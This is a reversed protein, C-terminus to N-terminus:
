ADGLRYRDEDIGPPFDDAADKTPKPPVPAAAPPMAYSKLLGCTPCRFVTVPIARKWDMVIGGTKFLGFFSAEVPVGPLFTAWQTSGHNADPQCGIEMPVNCDPCNVVRPSM